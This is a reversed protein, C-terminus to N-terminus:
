PPIIMLKLRLPQRHTITQGRRRVKVDHLMAMRQYKLKHMTETGEKDVTVPRIRLCVCHSM